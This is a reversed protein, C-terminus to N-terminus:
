EYIELSFLDDYSQRKRILKHDNGQILIEPLMSRTNYNSAMTAGYAGASQIAVLDNRHLEQCVRDRSFTDGTECVPGVIDYSHTPADTKQVVPTLSHWANYLSPRAIDNMAFDCVLFKKVNTEKVLRVKSVLLGANGVVYRGPEMIIDCGLPLIYEKVAKAIDSASLPQEDQYKIGFGGGIDITKIDHGRGQLTRIVDAFVQYGKEFHWVDPIQSGLHMSIGVAQINDLTKVHDFADIIRDPGLGFKDIARATMIKDDGGATIDPNLRFAINAIKGMEAAIQNIREVEEIAELNLQSVGADICARIESESKGIGTMVIQDGSFGAKLARNLEGESVIELCIGQKRIFQLIAINSNAKTAYCFKPQKDRPLEEGFAEKLTDIQHAIHASSYAYFPTGYEAALDTISVDEIHLTDNKYSFYPSLLETM